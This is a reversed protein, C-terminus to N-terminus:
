RKWQNLRSPSYGERNKIAYILGCTTQASTQCIKFVGAGNRCHKYKQHKHIMMKSTYEKAGCHIDYEKLPDALFM